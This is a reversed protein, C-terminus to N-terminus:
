SQRVHVRWVDLRHNIKEKAATSIVNGLGIALARSGIHSVEWFGDKTLNTTDILVHYEELFVKDIEKSCEFEQAYKRIDEKM